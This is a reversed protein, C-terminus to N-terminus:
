KAGKVKAPYQRLSIKKKTQHLRGSRLAKYITDRKLELCNAVETLNLGDDLLKQAEELVSQTLVGAGRVKRKTYFGEPGKERYLKVSRLVLNKTVGFARIIDAQKANGNVCLQATFMKFTKMDDEDHIFIPMDWNFYIIKGDEKKFSISNTIETIGEPFYPLTMQTM